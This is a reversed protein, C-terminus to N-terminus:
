LFYHDEYKKCVISCDMNTERTTYNYSPNKAIQKGKVQTLIFPNGKVKVMVKSNQHLTLFELITSSYGLNVDM